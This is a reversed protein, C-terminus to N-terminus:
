TREIIKIFDVQSAQALREESLGFALEDVTVNIWTNEIWEKGDYESITYKAFDPLVVIQLGKEIYGVEELIQILIPDDRRIYDQHFPHDDVVICDYSYYDGSQYSTSYPTNTRELYMKLVADSLNYGGYENNIVVQKM